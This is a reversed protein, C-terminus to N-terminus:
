EAPMTYIPAVYGDNPFTVARVSEWIAEQIEDLIQLAREKSAYWGILPQMEDSVYGAIVYPKSKDPAYNKEVFPNFGKCFYLGKDQAKIWIGNM